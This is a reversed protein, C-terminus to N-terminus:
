NGTKKPKKKKRPKWIWQNKNVVAEISEETDDPLDSFFDIGTLEEVEDVTKIYTQLSDYEMNKNPFVFGICKYGPQTYDYVIKYCFEPVAINNPGITQTSSGQITGAYIEISEYTYAWTSVLAELNKWRGRNLKTTQPVCNTYLFTEKMAQPDFTMDECPVMHGKDFRADYDSDNAQVADTPLLPDAKFSGKRPLNAQLYQSKTYTYHTWVPIHLTPSFGIEYYTHNLTIETLKWVSSYLTTDQGDPPTFIEQAYNIRASFLLFSIIILFRHPLALM